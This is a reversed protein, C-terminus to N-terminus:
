VGLVFHRLLPWWISPVPMSWLDVEKAGSAEILQFRWQVEDFPIPEETSANVTELGVGSRVIGFTNVLMDLQKTFSTDTSTYTGMSIFSDASTTNLLSYNWIPSWTAIDVSLKLGKAHLREAFLNIFAAYKVGDDATVADTPEWDLNYGHYGFQSAATICSDIFPEPNEFTFRMWDIFEPPHPFSSLLPWAELGMALIESAVETLNNDVLSSNPGLTYKEFSISHFLDVHNKIQQLNSSIVSASEDCFELCMWAMLRNKGTSNIKANLSAVMPVSVALITLCFLWILNM